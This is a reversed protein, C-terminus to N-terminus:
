RPPAPHKPPTAVGPRSPHSPFSSSLSPSVRPAENSVSGGSSRAASISATTTSFSKSSCALHPIISARRQPLPTHLVLFPRPLVPTTRSPRHSPTSSSPPTDTTDPQTSLIALNHHSDFPFSPHKNRNRVAAKRQVLGTLATPSSGTSSFVRMGVGRWESRGRRGGGEALVEWKSLAREGM